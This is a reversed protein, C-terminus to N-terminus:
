APKSIFSIGDRRAIDTRCVELTLGARSVLEGMLEPTMVSFSGGLKHRNLSRPVENVFKQWGLESLTNAHQIIAKGGPRLVRFTETLYNYIDWHQLHVFVGYSFVADASNDSIQGLGSGDLLLTDLNTRDPFRSRLIDVMTPSTDTAVVRDCFELLPDTFRGGGAGIEILLTPTGLYPRFVEGVLFPVIQEPALAMGIMSPKNWEDGVRDQWRRNKAYLDWTEAITPEGGRRRLRHVARIARSRLAERSLGM